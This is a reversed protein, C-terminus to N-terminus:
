KKKYWSGCGAVEVRMLAKWVQHSVIFSTQRAKSFHSPSPCRGYIPFNVSWFCNAYYIKTTNFKCPENLEHFKKLPQQNICPRTDPSNRTNLRSGPILLALYCQPQWSYNNILCKGRHTHVHACAQENFMTAYININAHWIKTTPRLRSIILKGLRHYAWTLSTLSSLITYSHM